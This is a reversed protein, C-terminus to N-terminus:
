LLGQMEAMFTEYADGQVLSRGSSSSSGSSGKTALGENSLNTRMKAKVAKPQDRRVRLSTPMFKTVEAQVNRLQPQASIVPAQNTSVPTSQIHPSPKNFLPPPPPPPHTRRRPLVPPPPPPPPPPFQSSQPFLPLPHAFNPPPGPPPPPPIKTERDDNDSGLLYWM